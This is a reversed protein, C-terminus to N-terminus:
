RSAPAAEAARLLVQATLRGARVAHEAESGRIRNLAPDFEGMIAGAHDTDPEALEAPWGRERLAALFERSYRVELLTDATGHVLHVPVPAAATTALDSLPCSGTTRATLDYRSAIGVVAAPRWGDFLDPRLAVGVAAPAGASWGALVIRDPDAGYEAAHERVHALSGLLHARGSDPADSRWDPVFVPLGLRAVERALPALIDREDPGLGHWLLVAPPAAAPPGDAARDTPDVPDPRYVDIPKDHPGHVLTCTVGTRATM